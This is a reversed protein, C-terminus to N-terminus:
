PFVKSNLVVCFDCNLTFGSPVFTNEKTTEGFLTVSVIGIPSVTSKFITCGSVEWSM